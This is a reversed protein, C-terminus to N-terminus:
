FDIQEYKPDVVREYPVYSYDMTINDYVPEVVASRRIIPILIIGTCCVGITFFGFGSIIIGTLVAPPEKEAQPTVEEKDESHAFINHLVREAKKYKCLVGAIDTKQKVHWGERTNTVYLTSERFYSNENEAWNTFTVKTNNNWYLQNNQLKLGIWFERKAFGNLFRQEARTTIWVISAGKFHCIKEAEELSHFTAM